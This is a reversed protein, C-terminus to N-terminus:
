WYVEDLPWPSFTEVQIKVVDSLKQGLEVPLDVQRVIGRDRPITLYVRNTPFQHNTALNTVVKVCEDDNHTTFHPIRHVAILRLKGLHSRTIAFRLDNGCIEIGLSNKPLLM